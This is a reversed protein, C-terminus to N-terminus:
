IGTWTRDEGPQPVAWCLYHGPFFFRYRYFMLRLWFLCLLRACSLDPLGFRKQVVFVSSLIRAYNTFVSPIVHAALSPAFYLFM